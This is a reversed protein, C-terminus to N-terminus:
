TVLESMPAGVLREPWHQSYRRGSLATSSGGERWGLEAPMLAPTPHTPLHFHTPHNLGTTHQGLSSTPTVDLPTPTVDTLGCGLGWYEM